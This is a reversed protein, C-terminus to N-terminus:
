WNQSIPQKSFEALWNKYQLLFQISEKPLEADKYKPCTTHIEMSLVNDVYTIIYPYLRCELPRQEYIKCKGFKYFICHNNIRLLRFLNTGSIPILYSTFFKNVEPPTLIPAGVHPWQCCCAICNYCNM